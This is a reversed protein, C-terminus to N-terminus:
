PAIHVSQLKAPTESHAARGMACVCRIGASTLEPCHPAFSFMLPVLPKWECNFILLYVFLQKMKNELWTTKGICLFLLLSLGPCRFALVMAPTTTIEEREITWRGKWAAQFNHLEIQHPQSRSSGFPDWFISVCLNLACYKEIM